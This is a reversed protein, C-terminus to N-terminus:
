VPRLPSDKMSIPSSSSHQSPDVPCVVDMALITPVLLPSPSPTPPPRRQRPTQRRAPEEGIRFRSVPSAAALTLRLKLSMMAKVMRCGRRRVMQSEGAVENDLLRALPLSHINEVGIRGSSEKRGGIVLDRAELATKKTCVKICMVERSDGGHAHVEVVYTIRDLTEPWSREPDLEVRRSVAPSSHVGREAVHEPCRLVRGPLVDVTVFISQTSDVGTRLECLRDPM